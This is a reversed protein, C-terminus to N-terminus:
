HNQSNIISRQNVLVVNLSSIQYHKVGVCRCSATRKRPRTAFVWLTSEMPHRRRGTWGRRTNEIGFTSGSSHSFLNGTCFEVSFKHERRNFVSKRNQSYSSNVHKSVLLGTVAPAALIPVSVFSRLVDSFQLKLPILCSNRSSNIFMPKYCERLVM